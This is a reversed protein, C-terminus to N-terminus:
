SVLINQIPGASIFITSTARRSKWDVRVSVPVVFIGTMAKGEDYHVCPLGEDRVPRTRFGM